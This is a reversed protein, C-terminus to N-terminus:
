LGAASAKRTSLERRLERASQYKPTVDTCDNYDDDEVALNLTMGNDDDNEVEVQVHVPTLWSLAHIVEEECVTAEATM